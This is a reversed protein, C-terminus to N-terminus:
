SLLKNMKCYNDVIKLFSFVPDRDFKKIKKLFNHSGTVRQIVLKKELKQLKMRFSFILPKCVKAIRQWGQKV